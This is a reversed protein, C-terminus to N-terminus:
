ARTESTALRQSNARASLKATGAKNHHEGHQSFALWEAKQELIQSVAGTFEPSFEWTGARGGKRERFIPTTPKKIEVLVTYDTFTMLFDIMPQNRNDVGGAGVKMERDFPRMIRYDLGFGFVWHEREFFNQWDAESWAGEAMQREYVELGQKRGLLVNIEDATLTSQLARLLDGRQGENMGKVREVLGRDSADILAKPGPRTSIDEIQFNEPNSLDIFEIQALFALLRQFEDGRFTFEDKGFGEYWDGSRSKFTLFSLRKVRKEDQSILATVQTKRSSGTLRLCLAGDIEGLVVKDNGELVMRVNRIPEPNQAGFSFVKSIYTKGAKRMKFFDFDNDDTM